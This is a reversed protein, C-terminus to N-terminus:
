ELHDGLVRPVRAAHGLPDKRLPTAGSCEVVPELEDLRPFHFNVRSLQFNPIVIALIQYFFHDNKSLSAWNM